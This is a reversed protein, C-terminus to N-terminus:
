APSPQIRFPVVPPTTLDSLIAFDRDDRKTRIVERVKEDLLSSMAAEPARRSVVGGRGLVSGIVAAEM